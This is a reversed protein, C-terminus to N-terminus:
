LVISRQYTSIPNTGTNLLNVWWYCCRQQKWIIPRVISKRSNLCNHYAFICSTNCPRKAHLFLKQVIYEYMYIILLLRLRQGAISEECKFQTAQIKVSRPCDFDLCNVCHFHLIHGFCSLISSVTHELIKSKVM